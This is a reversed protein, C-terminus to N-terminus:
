RTSAPREPPPPVVERDLPRSPSAVPAAVLAQFTEACRRAHKRDPFRTAGIRLGLKTNSPTSHRARPPSSSACRGAGPRADPRNRFWRWRDARRRISSVFTGSRTRGHRHLLARRGRPVRARKGRRPRPARASPAVNTPDCRSVVSTFCTRPEGPGVPRATRPLESATASLGGRRDLDRFHLRTLPEGGNVNPRFVAARPITRAPCRLFGGLPSIDYGAPSHTRTSSGVQSPPGPRLAPAATSSRVAGARSRAPPPVGVRPGDPVPATEDTRRSAAEASRRPLHPNERLEPAAPARPPVAGAYRRRGGRPPPIRDRPDDPRDRL